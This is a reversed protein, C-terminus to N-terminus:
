LQERNTGGSNLGAARGGDVPSAIGTHLRGSRQHFAHACQRDGAPRGHARTADFGVPAVTGDVKASRRATAAGLRSAAGTILAVSETNLPEGAAM